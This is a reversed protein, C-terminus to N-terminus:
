KAPRIFAANCWDAHDAIDLNAGPEVLLVVRKVGRVDLKVNAPRDRGKMRKRFLERGDALIVFECDGKRGSADDLGIVATFTEYRGDTAFTLQSRSHVGLGKDYVRGGLTLPKGTVCRDKRWKRPLAVIPQEAVEAPKLDSVYQLRESQFEIRSVLKGSVSLEGGELLRLKLPGDSRPLEAITGPVISGDTLYVRAFGTTKLPRKVYALVVGHLGKRPLTVRRNDVVIVVQQDDLSEILGRVIRLKGRLTVVLQDFDESPSALARDFLPDAKAAFLIARGAEVPIALKNMNRVFHLKDDKITVADTRLLGDGALRVRALSAPKVPRGTHWARLGSLPITKTQGALRVNGDKDIATVRGTLETGDLLTLRDAASVAQVLGTLLLVVGLSCVRSVRAHAGNM